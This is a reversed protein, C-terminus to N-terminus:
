SLRVLCHISNTGDRNPECISNCWVGKRAVIYVSVNGRRQLNGMLVRLPVSRLPAFKFFAGIRQPITRPNSPRESSPSAMSPKRVMLLLSRRRQRFRRRTPQTYGIGKVARGKPRNKKCVLGKVFSYEAPIIFFSYAGRLEICRPPIKMFFLKRDGGKERRNWCPAMKCRQASVILM